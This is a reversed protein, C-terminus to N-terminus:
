ERSETVGTGTNRKEYSLLERFRENTEELSESIRSLRKEFEADDEAEREAAQLHWSLAQAEIKLSM